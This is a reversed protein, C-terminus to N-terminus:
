PLRGEPLCDLAEMWRRTRGGVVMPVARLDEIRRCGVLMMVARLELVFREIWADVEEEGALGAQLLPRAVGVLTAGLAFAKAADLGTRIGGTAVVPAGARAASAVAVATPIGWRGLMEGLHVGALDGQREARLREVLAFNTGGSGGVDLGAAGLEVLRRATEEAIGAGTEKAVLPVTLTAALEAIAEGCGRARRDGEPQVLEELFNLHVALADADVMALVREIAAADLPPRDEDQAILQPAGINAIVFADPAEARVAAYTPELDPDALAARQSGVGVACGHRQAAGGFRRNLERAEPYGGTMGAILLPADLRRGLFDVAIDVDDLDVEPLAVHVLELDEWGPGATCEVPAGGALEVHEAKRNRVESKV